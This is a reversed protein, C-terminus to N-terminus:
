SQSRIPFISRNNDSIQGIIAYKPYLSGALNSATSNESVGAM